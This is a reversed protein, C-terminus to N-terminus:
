FIMNGVGKVIYRTHMGSKVYYDLDREVVSLLVSRVGIMHSSAGNEVIWASNEELWAGNVEIGM